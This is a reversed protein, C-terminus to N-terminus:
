ADATEMLGALRSVGTMQSPQELGLLALITPAVDSLKGQPLVPTQAEWAQHAVIFPVLSLTHATHAQQTSADELQEINGHDATVLLCGGKPLAAKALKGLCTDVTEVAKISAEMNGTHGVMDPNAYNVIILDFRESEIAEVLKETVEFASMEPKLDYTAVKPSPVLIRSEGAFENEAGANFFFTVHAYKETEAIRLQTLGANAVTEGLTHTIPDNAFLPPLFPALERSYEVMGMQAAFNVRRKPTFGDFRDHVLATVIERARDARFNIMLLGDGDQMSPANNLITPLLFEDSIDQAYSAEIAAKASPATAGQGDVMANYAKEVRDWRKDRDMAYYRGSLTAFKILEGAKSLADECHQIYQLASRPPTDRGDLFGHIYVTIGEKALLLALAVLHNHHSHVGGPSLLGMLHCVNNANKLYHVFNQFAPISRIQDRAIADDIRPLEQLVVRGSGINM